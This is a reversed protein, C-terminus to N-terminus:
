NGGRGGGRRGGMGGGRGGGPPKMGGGESAMLQQKERIQQLRNKSDPPVPRALACKMVADKIQMGDENEIARLCDERETFDM